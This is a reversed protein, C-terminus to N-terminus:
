ARRRAATAETGTTVLTATADFGDAWADGVIAAGGLEGVVWMVASADAPKWGAAVQVRLPVERAYGALPAIAAEVAHMEADAAATGPDPTTARAAATAAAATPARYVGPARIQFGPRRARVTFPTS